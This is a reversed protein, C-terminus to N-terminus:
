LVLSEVAVGAGFSRFTMVGVFPSLLERRGAHDIFM